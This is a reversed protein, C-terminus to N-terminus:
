EVEGDKETVFGKKFENATRTLAAENSTGKPRNTDAFQTVSHDRENRGMEIDKELTEIVPKIFGRHNSTGYFPWRGIFQRRYPDTPMEGVELVPLDDAAFIITQQLPGNYRFRMHYGAKSFFASDDKFLMEAWQLPIRRFRSFDLADKYMEISCMDKFWDLMQMQSLPTLDPYRMLLEYQDTGDIFSQLPVITFYKVSLESALNHYKVLPPITAPADLMTGQLIKNVMFYKYEDTLPDYVATETSGSFEDTIGWHLESDATEYPSTALPVDLQRISSPHSMDLFSTQFMSLNKQFYDLLKDTYSYRDDPFYISRDEIWARFQATVDLYAQHSLSIADLTKNLFYDWTDSRSLAREDVLNKIRSVLWGPSNTLILEVIREKYKRVFLAKLKEASQLYNSEPQIFSPYDGQTGFLDTPLGLMPWSGRTLSRTEKDIIEAANDRVSYATSLGSYTQLLVYYFRMLETRTVDLKFDDSIDTVEFVLGNLHARGQMVKPAGLFAGCEEVVHYFRLPITPGTTEWFAKYLNYALNVPKCNSVLKLSDEGLADIGKTMCAKAYFEATENLTGAIGEFDFEALGALEKTALTKDIQNRMMAPSFVGNIFFRQINTLTQTILNLVQADTFGLSKLPDVLLERTQPPWVAQTMDKLVIPGDWDVVEHDNVHWSSIKGFVEFYRLLFNGLSTVTDDSVEKRTGYSAILTQFNFLFSSSLFEIPVPILPQKFNSVAELVLRTRFPYVKQGHSEVELKKISNSGDTVLNGKQTTSMNRISAENNKGQNKTETVEPQKAESALDETSVAIETQKKKKM